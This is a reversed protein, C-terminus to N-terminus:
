FDYKDDEANDNMKIVMTLNQIISIFDRKKVKQNEAVSNAM